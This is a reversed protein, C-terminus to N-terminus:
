LEQKTNFMFFPNSTIIENDIQIYPNDHIPCLNTEKLNESSSKQDKNNENKVERKIENM